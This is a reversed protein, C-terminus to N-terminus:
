TRSPMLELSHSYLSLSVQLDMLLAISVLGEFFITLAVRTRTAEFALALVVYTSWLFAEVIALQSAEDSSTSM